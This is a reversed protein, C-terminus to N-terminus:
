DTAPRKPRRTEALLVGGIVVAMSVFHFRELEEGLFLLSQFSATVPILYYTVGTAAAGLYHIAANWAWYCLISPVIGLYVVWIWQKADLDPFGFVAGHILAPILLYAAGLTVCVAHFLLIPIESPRQRALMMYWAWGGASLMAWLDGANLDVIEWPLREGKGILYFLGGSAVLCGAIQVGRVKEIRTVALIALLVIPSTGNILSSNVVPTYLLSMYVTLMYGVMGVLAIKLFFRRHTLISDWRRAFSRHLIPILFAAAIFWRLFTLTIPHIDEGLSRGLVFNFGWGLIALLALALGAARVRVDHSDVATLRSM